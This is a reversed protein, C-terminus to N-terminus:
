KRGRSPNCGLLEAEMEALLRDVLAQWESRREKRQAPPAKDVKALALEADALEECMDRFSEARDMMRYITLEHHPFRRLAAAVARKRDEPLGETGM